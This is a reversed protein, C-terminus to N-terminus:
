LGPRHFTSSLVKWAGNELLLQYSQGWQRIQTGDQRLLHWTLTVLMSQAGIEVVSVNSTTFRDYGEQQWSSWVRAFFTAVAAHDYLVAITGDARVSFAPQCYHSAFLPWEAADFNRGYEEFFAQAQTL